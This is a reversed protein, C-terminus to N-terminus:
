RAANAEEIMQQRLGPFEREVAHIAQSRSLGSAVKSSVSGTWQATASPKSASGGAAKAVPRVGLRAKAKAKAEVEEEEKEEEMAKAKALEEEEMSKAKAQEEQQEYQALKAKLAQMEEDMAALAETMVSAMPLSREICSLVFEAKFKPFAAKIEALSAAAPKTSESM